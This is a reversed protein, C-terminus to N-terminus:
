ADGRVLTAPARELWPGGHDHGGRAARQPIAGPERGAGLRDADDLAENLSASAAHARNSPRAISRSTPASSAPRHWGPSWPPSGSRIHPGCDRGGRDRAAQLRLVGSLQLAKVSAAAAELRGDVYGYIGVCMGVVLVLGATVAVRNRRLFKGARYLAGPRGALVPKFALHRRLDGALESASAYRRAPDKELARMCIWDLDGSLQRVLSREDTGHLPALTTATDKHRKLRTSPTPPDMECIVRQVESLPRDAQQHEFPLLGSLLQYLVVGLSYIDSRTDIDTATPNAQEPSMYDLTGVIQGVMTHLTREALRGTTARAVGFDIIKPIGRGEQQLVLLNSPKLDRHIIGKQHAHQVGECIDIFLEIRERTSLKRLDCYEHIPQGAVYEMVFYPSGSETTGGDYVHAINAHSMRALAQREAEFRAVVQASDMGPKIVKLAVRRVVPALQEAAYVDGMGGEGIKELLKYPGIHLGAHVAPLSQIRDLVDPGSLGELARELEARLPANSGCEREVFALREVPSLDAAQEFLTKLREFDEPSLDASM